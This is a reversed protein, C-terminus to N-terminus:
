GHASHPGNEGERRVRRGMREVGCLRKVRERGQEVGRERGSEGDNGEVERRTTATRERGTTM